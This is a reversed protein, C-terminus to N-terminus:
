KKEISKRKELMVKNKQIATASPAKLVQKIINVADSGTLTPTAQIPKVSVSMIDGDEKTGQELINSLMLFLKCEWFSKKM